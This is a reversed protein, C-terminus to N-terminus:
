MILPLLIRSTQTLIRLNLLKQLFILLKLLLITLILILTKIVSMTLLLCRKGIKAILINIISGLILIIIIFELLKPRLSTQIFPKRLLIRTQVLPSDM